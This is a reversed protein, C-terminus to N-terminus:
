SLLLIMPFGNIGLLPPTTTPSTTALDTVASTKTVTTRATMSAQTVQYM